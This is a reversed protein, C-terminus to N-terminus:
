HGWRLGGGAFFLPWAPSNGPLGFSWRAITANVSLHRVIVFELAAGAGVGIGDQRSTAWVPVYPQSGSALYYGGRDFRAEVRGLGGEVFPRASLRGTNLAIGVGGMGATVALNYPALRLASAQWTILSHQSHWTGELRGSPWRAAVSISDPTAAGHIPALWTLGLTVHYGDRPVFSPQLGVPVKWARLVSVVKDMTLADARPFEAETVLGVVEWRQNFLAGGSSGGGVSSSQFVIRDGDAAVFRDAPAPVGWCIGQPCGMPSVADGFALLDPDGLRDFAPPTWGPIASRAVRIVAIDYGMSDSQRLEAQVRTTDSRGFLRVWVRDARLATDSESPREVVLVVVHRATVVYIWKADVGVIVGAGGLRPTGTCPESSGVCPFRPIVRVVLDKALEPAPNPSQARAAPPCALAAMMGLGAACRM